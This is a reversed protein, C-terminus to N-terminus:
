EGHTPQTPHPTTQPQSKAKAFSWRVLPPTVITTVLVVLVIAAFTEQTIIGNRIGLAGVILGVEGRSIMGVGLRLSSLRDFGTLLGGGGAGILKSV